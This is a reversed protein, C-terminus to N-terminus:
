EGAGCTKGCAGCNKADGLPDVCVGACVTWGGPCPQCAGAKCLANPGCKVDCAGCNNPDSTTDICSGKCLSRGPGCNPADPAAADRTDSTADTIESLVDLDSRGCGLVFLGVAIGVRM